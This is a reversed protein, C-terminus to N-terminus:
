ALLAAEQLFPNSIPVLGLLIWKKTIKSMFLFNQYSTQHIGLREQVMLLYWVLETVREKLCIAM